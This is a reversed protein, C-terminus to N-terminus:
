YSGYNRNKNKKLIPFFPCIGTLKKDRKGNKLFLPFTSKWQKKEPHL